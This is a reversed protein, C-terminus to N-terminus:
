FSNIMVQLIKDFEEVHLSWTPQRLFAPPAAVFEVETEIKKSCKEEVMNGCNNKKNKADL